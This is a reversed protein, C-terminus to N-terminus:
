DDARAGKQYVRIGDADIFYAINSLFDTATVAAENVDEIIKAIDREVGLEAPEVIVEHLNSPIVIAGYPFYQTTILKQVRPNFIQGAGFLRSTNTVIITDACREVVAERLFEPLPEGTVKENLKLVEDAFNVIEFKGFFESDELMDEATKNWLKMLKFSVQISSTGNPNEELFIRFTYALDGCIKVLPINGYNKRYNVLVKRLKKKATDYNAIENYNFGPYAADFDGYERIIRDLEEATEVNGPYIIMKAGHKESKAAIEVGVAEEGNNKKVQRVRSKIGREKLAEIMEDVTM